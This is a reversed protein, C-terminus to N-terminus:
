SFGVTVAGMKKGVSFMEAMYKNQSNGPLSTVQNFIAIKNEVPLGPSMEGCTGGGENWHCTPMGVVCTM